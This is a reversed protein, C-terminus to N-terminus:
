ATETASARKAVTEADRGTTPSDHVQLWNVFRRNPRTDDVRWPMKSGDQMYLFFSICGDAIRLHTTDDNM